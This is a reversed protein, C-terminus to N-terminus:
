PTDQSCPHNTQRHAHRAAYRPLVDSRVVGEAHTLLKRYADGVGSETRPEWLLMRIAGLTIILALREREDQAEDPEERVTLAKM